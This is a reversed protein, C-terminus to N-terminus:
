YTLFSDQLFFNLDLFHPQSESITPDHHSGKSHTTSLWLAPIGFTWDTMWESQEREREEERESEWMSRTWVGAVHESPGRLIFLSPRKKISM